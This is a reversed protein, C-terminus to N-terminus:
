DNVKWMRIYLSFKGGLVTQGTTEDYQVRLSPDERQLQKLAVELANQYALSPPEISCFYVADPVKPELSLVENILDLNDEDSNQTKDVNLIKALKKQATRPAAANNTLLDGTM